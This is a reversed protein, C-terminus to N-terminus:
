TLQLQPASHLLQRHSWLHVIGVAHAVATPRCQLLAGGLSVEIVGNAPAFRSIVSISTQSNHIPLHLGAANMCCLLVLQKWYRCCLSGPALPRTLLFQKEQCHLIVSCTLDRPHPQPTEKHGNAHSNRATTGARESTDEFVTVKRTM